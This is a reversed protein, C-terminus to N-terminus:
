DDSTGGGGLAPNPVAPGFLEELREVHERKLPSPLFVSLHGNEGLPSLEFGAGRLAGISSSRIRTHRIGAATAIEGASKDPACFVSVAFRGGSDEKMAYRVASGMLDVL